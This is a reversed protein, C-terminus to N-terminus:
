RRNPEYPRLETSARVIRRLDSLGGHAAGYARAQVLINGMSTAESPGAMVSRGSRDAVAQALIPSESGGGVLHIVRVDVGSLAAAEDVQRAVFAGLSELVLRVVSPRDDPMRGGAEAVLEAIRATM